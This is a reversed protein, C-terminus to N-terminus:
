ALAAQWSAEDVRGDQVVVVQKEYALAEVESPWEKGAAVPVAKLGARCLVQARERAREVDSREVRWSAEVVLLVPEGTERLRGGWLLDAALVQTYDRETIRGEQLAIQLQDAVESTAEHGERLFRGFIGTARHRYFLERAEGKLDRIEERLQRRDAAAEAFGREMRDNTERIAEWIRQRDAAAEAFGREMREALRDLAAETRRQAEALAEVVRPLNLFAEPFLLRALEARWEPHAELLRILDHFDSITFPM